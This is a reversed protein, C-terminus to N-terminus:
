IYSTSHGADIGIGRDRVVIVASKGDPTTSLSLVVKGGSDTFKTANHLLNGIVQEIRTRDGTFFM